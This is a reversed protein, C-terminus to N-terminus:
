EVDIVYIGSDKVLIPRDNPDPPIHGFFAIQKGDASWRLGSSDYNNDGGATVFPPNEQMLRRKQRVLDVLMLKHPQESTITSDRASILLLSSDAPWSLDSVFLNEFPMRIHEGNIMDIVEFIPTFPPEAIPAIGVALFRGDPSWQVGMPWSEGEYGLRCITDEVLDALFLGQKSFLALFQDEPGGWTVETRAPRDLFLQVTPPLRWDLTEGIQELHQTVAPPTDASLSRIVPRQQSQVDQLLLGTRDANWQFAFVDQFLVEPAQDPSTYIFVTGTYPATAQRAGFAMGGLRPVWTPVGLGLETDMYPTLAKTTGDVIGIFTKKSDTNRFSIQNTTPVWEGIRLVTSLHERKYVFRPESFRFSDIDQSSPQAHAANLDFQCAAILSYDYGEPTAILELTQSPTRSPRPTYSPLTTRTATHSRADPTLSASLTATQQEAQSSQSPSSGEGCASLVFVLVLYISLIRSRIRM